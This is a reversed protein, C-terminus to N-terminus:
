ATVAPPLLTLSPAANMGTRETITLGPRAPGVPTSM